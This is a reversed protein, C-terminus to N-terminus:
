HDESQEHKLQSVFVRQLSLIVPFIILIAVFIILLRVNILDVVFGPRGYAYQVEKMRGDTIANQTGGVTVRDVLLDMSYPDLNIGPRASVAPVAKGNVSIDIKSSNRDVSLEIRQWKGLDFPEAIKILDTVDSPARSTGFEAFLNGYTDIAIKVGSSSRASTDLLYFANLPRSRIMFKMELRFRTPEADRGSATSVLLPNAEFRSDFSIPGFRESAPPPSWRSSPLFVATALLFVFPLLRKADLNKRISPFTACNV